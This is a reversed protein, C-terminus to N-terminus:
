TDSGAARPWVQPHGHPLGPSAAGDLCLHARLTRGVAIAFVQRSFYPRLIGNGSKYQKQAATLVDHKPPAPGSCAQAGVKQRITGAWAWAALGLPRLGRGPLATPHASLAGWLLPTHACKLTQGPPGHPHGITFLKSDKDLNPQTRSEKKGAPTVNGKAVNQFFQTCHTWWIDPPM